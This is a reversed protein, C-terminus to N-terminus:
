GFLRRWWPVPARTQRMLWQIVEDNGYARDWVAHGAGEFETYRVARNGVQKLAQVMRRSCAVDVNQDATGHFVWIPMRRLERVRRIDGGGCVPIAAAFREPRRQIADWTGFGGLSLGTIYVRDPDAQCADVLHDVMALVVEMSPAPQPPMAYDEGRALRKVWWNGTQCQPALIMVPEPQRLLTSLLAPLGVKLHRRNDTGCEGSGHLFLILPYRVGPRPFQPASLRYAFTEGTPANTFVCSHFREEVTFQACAKLTLAFLVLLWGKM